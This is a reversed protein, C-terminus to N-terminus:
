INGSQEETGKAGREGGVRAVSEPKAEAPEEMTGALPGLALSAGRVGRVQGNGGESGWCRGRSRVLRLSGVHGVVRVIIGDRVGRGRRSGSRCVARAHAHM